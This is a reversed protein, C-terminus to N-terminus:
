RAGDSSRISRASRDPGADAVSHQRNVGLTIGLKSLAAVLRVPKSSALYYGFTLAAFAGMLGIPPVEFKLAVAASLGMILSIGTIFLVVATTSWGAELLLHHFHSRDAAFPSRGNRIRRIMLVVCDIVPPGLFFPTLAATVPHLGNQTLRFSAWAIVLGLFESGGNGLFIAAKPRWPTRMNFALFGCLGGLLVVLGYALRDNGAYVAAATLMALAAATLAGALADVGDTMNLANMLGVTAFITVPASLAGLSGRTAGFLPGINEVRVGGVYILALAALGQAALRVYWRLDKLDDIVGVTIVIAGALALGLVNPTLEFTTLALPTCGALIAVGGILPVAGIHTKRGGPRDVLGLRSALPKLILVVGATIAFAAIAM